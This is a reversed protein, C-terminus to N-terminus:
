LEVELPSDPFADTKMFSERDKSFYWSRFMLIAIKGSQVFHLASCFFLPPSLYTSREQLLGM